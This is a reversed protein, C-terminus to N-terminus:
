KDGVRQSGMSQLGGLEEKSHSKGEGLSSGKGLLRGSGLVSAPYGSGSLSCDMSDCLTSCSQTAESVESVSGANAPLNKVVSGGPFGWKVNYLHTVAMRLGQQMHRLSCLM